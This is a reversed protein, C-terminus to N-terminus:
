DKLHLINNIWSEIQFLWNDDEYRWTKSAHQFTYFLIWDYIENWNGLRHMRVRVMLLQHFIKQSKIFNHVSAVFFIIVMTNQINSILIFEKHWKNSIVSAHLEGERQTEIKTHIRMLVAFIKNAFLFVYLQKEWQLM